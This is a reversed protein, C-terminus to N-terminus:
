KKSLKTSHSAARSGTVSSSGGAKALSGLGKEAQFDRFAAVVKRPKAAGFEAPFLEEADGALARVDDVRPLGAACARALAEVERPERDPYVRALAKILSSIAAERDARLKSRLAVVLAPLQSPVLLDVKSPLLARAHALLFQADELTPLAAVVEARLRAILRPDAADYYVARMALEIEAGLAKRENDECLAAYREAVRAPSADAPEGGGFLRAANNTVARLDANAPFAASVGAVLAELRARGAATDGGERWVDLALKRLLASELADREDRARLLALLGFCGDRRAAAALPAELRVGRLAVDCLAPLRSLPPPLTRLPTNSLDLARLSVCGELADGPLSSLPNDNLFLERLSVLAGLRPLTALENSGLDLRLLCPGLLPVAPPVACFGVGYLSLSGHERASALAAEYDAAMQLAHVGDGPGPARARARPPTEVSVIRHERPEKARQREENFAGRGRM